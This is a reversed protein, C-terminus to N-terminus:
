PLIEEIRKATLKNKKNHPKEKQWSTLEKATVTTPWRVKSISNRFIRSKEVHPYGHFSARAKSIQSAKLGYFEHVAGNRFHQVNRIDSLHFCLKSFSANQLQQEDTTQPSSRSRSKIEDGPEM